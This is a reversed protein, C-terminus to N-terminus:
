FYWVIVYWWKYMWERLILNIKGNNRVDNIKEIVMKLWKIIERLQKAYGTPNSDNKSLNSAFCTCTIREIGSLYHKLFTLLNM